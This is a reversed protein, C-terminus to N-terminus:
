LGGPTWRVFEVVVEVVGLVVRTGFLSSSELNWLVFWWGRVFCGHAREDEPVPFASAGM